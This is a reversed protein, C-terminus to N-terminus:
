PGLGQLNLPLWAQLRQLLYVVVLGIVSVVLV